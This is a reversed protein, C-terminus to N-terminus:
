TQKLGRQKRRAEGSRIGGLRGASARAERNAEVESRSPQYEPYDHIVIGNGNREWLGCAELERVAPGRALRRLAAEPIHGDTLHRGAYCLGDVFARYAADSLAVIKPHDYFGDDIRVWTM